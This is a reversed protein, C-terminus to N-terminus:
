QPQTHLNVLTQYSNPIPSSSQLLPCQPKIHSSDGCNFCARPRAYATPKSSQQWQVPRGVVPSNIPLAAVNVTPQPMVPITQVHPVAQVTVHQMLAGFQKGLTDIQSKIATLEASNSTEVTAVRGERMKSKGTEEGKQRNTDRIWAELQLSIRM